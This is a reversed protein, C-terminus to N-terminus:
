FLFSCAAKLSLHAPAGAGNMVMDAVRECVRHKFSDAIHWFAAVPAVNWESKQGRAHLAGLRVVVRLAVPTQGALTVGGGQQRLAIRM